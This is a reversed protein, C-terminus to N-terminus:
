DKGILDPPFAGAGLATMVFGGALETLREVGAAGLHEYPAADMRDTALELESRLATGAETLEREADLLGREQLRQVAVDWEARTWGRTELAWKVAFGKGTATHSVLAELPGLDAALLAAIHGDGRHERLLTAAHWLALHPEEPLPLDAHAAYLPRGPRTCAETATLALRAAEAMEPSDVADGLLRRLSGDVARLRAALAAEPAATEWIAPVHEAILEHKFNYFTAAVTGAGVAGLAASRGAFYPPSWGDLGIAGMEKGYEPSFYHASHLPNLMNQCRRGAKPPLSSTM